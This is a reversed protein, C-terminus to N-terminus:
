LNQFDEIDIINSELYKGENMNKYHMILPVITLGLGINFLLQIPGEATFLFTKLAEDVSSLYVIDVINFILKIAVYIIMYIITQLILRKDFNVIKFSGDIFNKIFKNISVHMLIYVVLIIATKIAYLLFIKGNNAVAELLNIQEDSYGLEIFMSLDISSLSLFSFYAFLCFGFAIIRLIFMVKIFKRLKEFAFFTNNQHKNFVVQGLYLILIIILINSLIFSFLGFSGNIISEILEVLLMIIWIIFTMLLWKSKLLSHTQEKIYNNERNEM